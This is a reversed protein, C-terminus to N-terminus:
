NEKEGSPRGLHPQFPQILTIDQSMRARNRRCELIEYIRRGIGLGNLVREGLAAEALDFIREVQENQQNREETSHQGPDIM